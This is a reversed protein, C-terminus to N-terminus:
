APLQRRHTAGSPFPASHDRLSLGSLLSYDRTGLSPRPWLYGNYLPVNHVM